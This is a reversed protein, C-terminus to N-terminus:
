LRLHSKLGKKWTLMERANPLAHDWHGLCAGYGRRAAIESPSWGEQNLPSDQFKPLPVFTFKLSETNKM